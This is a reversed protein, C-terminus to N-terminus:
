LSKLGWYIDSLLQTDAPRCECLMKYLEQMQTEDPKWHPKSCHEVWNLWKSCDSKSWRDLDTDKGLHWLTDLFESLEKKINEYDDSCKPMNSQEVCEGEVELNLIVEKDTTKFDIKNLINYGVAKEILNLAGLSNLIPNDIGIVGREVGDTSETTLIYGGIVKEIILKFKM